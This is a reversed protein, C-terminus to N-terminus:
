NVRSLLPYIDVILQSLAKFFILDILGIIFLLLEPILFYWKEQFIFCRIVRIKKLKQRIRSQKAEKTKIDIIGSESLRSNVIFNDSIFIIGKGSSSGSIVMM